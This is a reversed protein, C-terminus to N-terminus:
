SLLTVLSHLLGNGIGKIGTVSLDGTSVPCAAAENLWQMDRLFGQRGFVVCLMAVIHMLNHGNFVYDLKGPFWREPIHFANVLAGVASITDTIIQYPVSSTTSHSLSSLRLPHLLVRLAFQATLASTRKQKCDVVMLYFVVYASLCSYMFIYIGMLNPTCYLGTYMNPLPGFTCVWWVGLIDTKLLWKYTKEGSIHPMFTHYIVSMLFPYTACIFDNVIFFKVTSSTDSGSPWIATYDRVAYLFYLFGFGTYSHFTQYEPM